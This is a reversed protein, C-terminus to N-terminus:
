THCLISRNSYFGSMISKEPFSVNFEEYDAHNKDSLLRQVELAVEGNHDHPITNKENETSWFRQIKFKNEAIGSVM